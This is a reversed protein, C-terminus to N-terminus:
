LEATVYLLANSYSSGLLGAHGSVFSTSSQYVGTARTNPWSLGNFSDFGIGSTDRYNIYYNSGSTQVLTPSVRKEVKFRFIAYLQNTTYAVSNVM